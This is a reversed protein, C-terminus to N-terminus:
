LKVETSVSFFFQCDTKLINNSSGHFLSLNQHSSPLIPIIYIFYFVPNNKLNRIFLYRTQAGEGNSAILFNYLNGKSAIDM